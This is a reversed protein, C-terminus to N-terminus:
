RPDKESAWGARCTRPGNDIVLPVGGNQGMTAFDFSPIAAEPDAPGDPIEYVMGNGAGLM